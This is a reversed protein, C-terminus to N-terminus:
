PIPRGCCRCVNEGKVVEWRAEIREEDSPIMRWCRWLRNYEGAELKPYYALLSIEDHKSFTKGWKPVLLEVNKLGRVELWFADYHKTENQLDQFTEIFKAIM